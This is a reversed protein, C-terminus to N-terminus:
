DRKEEVCGIPALLTPQEILYNGFMGPWQEILYYSRFETERGLSRSVVSGPLVGIIDRTFDDQLQDLAQSFHLRVPPFLRYAVQSIVNGGGGVVSEVAIQSSLM